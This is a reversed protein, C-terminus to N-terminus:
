LSKRVVLNGEIATMAAPERDSELIGVLAETMATIPQRYTTLAYAPAAALAIDDYGVVAVDEPVRLGLGHRLADMAGIALIDNECVIANFRDAGGLKEFAELMREQALTFNYEGVNLVHAPEGGRKALQAQLNRERRLGASLTYPGALYLVRTRGREFLLDAIAAMARDDDCFISITGDARGERAFVVLKKLRRAGKATALLNEDFETGILVAADVRRQSAAQLAAAGGKTGGLAHIVLAAWGREQFIRTMRELIVLKHPNEFDDFILAVLNSRDSALGAAYLDPVYGLQEAIALVKERSKQSISADKKFARAVTWRSVGAASAVDEATVTETEPDIRGDTM